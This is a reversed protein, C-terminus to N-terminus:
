MAFMISTRPITNKGMGVIINKITNREFKLFKDLFLAKNVINLTLDADNSGINEKVTNTDKIFAEFAAYGKWARIVAEKTVGLPNGILFRKQAFDRIIKDNPSPTTPNYFDFLFNGYNLALFLNPQVISLIRTKLAAASNEGFYPAM